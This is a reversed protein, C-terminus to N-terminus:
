AGILHADDILGRPLGDVGESSFHARIAEAHRMRIQPPVDNDVLIVQCPMNSALAREAVEFMYAYMNLYKGPDSVDEKEDEIANTEHHHDQTKGLYKGVTDIMLFPPLNPDIASHPDPSTCIELLSVYFGISLITRLGGSTIDRYDRNRLVPLFTKRGIAIGFPDKIKVFRLYRSLLDGLESLVGDLSPAAARLRNLKEQLNLIAEDLSSIDAFILKQQNRVKIAHLIQHRRENLKALEASLGDRQTLYPTIMQTSSEDLLQRVKDRDDVYMKHSLALQVQKDREADILTDLERNRKTLVNIEQAARDNDDIAYARRVAVMDVASSCLPCSFTEQPNGIVSRATRVSRLKAVDGQYDHKLRVYRDIARESATRDSENLRILDNFEVLKDRLFRYAANDATMRVNLEALQASVAAHQTALIAEADTLAQESEFETERLFESVTKYKDVLRNQKKTFTSLEEQVDTINTDLLNFIYKFTERNKLEVAYNGSGLLGKSGVDDQKLYCYKFVDRFSLRVMESDAKSPSQRLKVRPLRLADLMFDSFYGDPGEAFKFNAALRRPFNQEIENLGCVFVEIPENPLFIDRRIVHLRGNMAVEMMVFRVSTEIERDIIIKSSGLLYNICELISSKGTASDGYIINVGQEFPIEYNKRRGVLVLKNIVLTPRNTQM